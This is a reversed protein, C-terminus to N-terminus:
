SGFGGIRRVFLIIDPAGSLIPYPKRSIDALQEPHFV